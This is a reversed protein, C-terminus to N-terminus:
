DTIFYRVENKPDSGDAGGILRVVARGTKGLLEEMKPDGDPAYDVADFFKKIRGAARNKQKADDDKGALWLMPYITKPNENTGDVEPELTLSIGAWDKNTKASTGSKIEADLVRFGIETNDAFPAPAVYGAIAEGLGALETDSM